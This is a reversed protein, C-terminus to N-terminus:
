RVSSTMPFGVRRWVSRPSFGMSSVMVGFAFVSYAPFSCSFGLTRARARVDKQVWVMRARARVVVLASEVVVILARQYSRGVWMCVSQYMCITGTPELAVRQGSEGSNRPHLYASLCACANLGM